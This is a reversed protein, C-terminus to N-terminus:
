CVVKGADVSFEQESGGHCSDPHRAYGTGPLVDTWASRVSGPGPGLGGGLERGAYESWLDNGIDDAICRRVLALEATEELDRLDKIM